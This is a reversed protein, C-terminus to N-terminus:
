SSSAMSALNILAPAFMRRMAGMMITTSSGGSGGFCAAQGRLGPTWRWSMAPRAQKMDTLTLSFGPPGNGPRMKNPVQLIQAADNHRPLQGLMAQHTNVV